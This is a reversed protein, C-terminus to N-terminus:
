RGNLVVAPRIAAEREEKIAMFRTTDDRLLGTLRLPTVTYKVSHRRHEYRAEDKLAIRESVTMRTEDLLYRSMESYRELLAPPIEERPCLLRVAIYGNAPTERKGYQRPEGDRSQWISVLVGNHYLLEISRM